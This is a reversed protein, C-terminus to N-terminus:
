VTLAALSIQIINESIDIKPQRSMCWLTWTMFNPKLSGRLTFFIYIVIPTLKKCHVKM